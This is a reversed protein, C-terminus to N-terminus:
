IPQGILEDTDYGYQANAYRNSAVIMGDQDVMVIGIASEMFLAEFISDNAKLSEKIM